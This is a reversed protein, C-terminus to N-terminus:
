WRPPAGHRAAPNSRAPPATASRASLEDAGLLTRRGVADRGRRAAELFQLRHGLRIQLAAGRAGLSGHHRGRQRPRRRGVPHLLCAAASARLRQELRAVRRDQPRRLLPGAGPRRHWLGLPARHQVMAALQARRDAPRAHPADRRLLGLRRRRHRFLRGELGLLDLHRRPPRLGPTREDRRRSPRERGAGRSGGGAKAPDATRRWLWPPLDQEAVPALRAPVGAKRFYKQALIDCAVQSWEAPVEFGEAEFVVSGDPNRIESTATRFPVTEYPDRGATTFRRAIHM